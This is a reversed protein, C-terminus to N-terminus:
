LQMSEAFRLTVRPQDFLTKRRRNFLDGLM